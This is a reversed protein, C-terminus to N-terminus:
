CCGQPMWSAHGPDAPVAKGGKRTALASASVPGSQLIVGSRQRRFACARVGCLTM